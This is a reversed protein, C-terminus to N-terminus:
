AARRLILLAQPQDKKLQVVDQQSQEVVDHNVAGSKFQALRAAFESILPRELRDSMSLLDLGLAYQYWADTPASVPRRQRVPKRSEEAERRYFDDIHILATQHPTLLLGERRQGPPPQQGFACWVDPLVPSDQTFRQASGLGFIAEQLVADDLAM